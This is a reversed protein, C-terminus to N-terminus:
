KTVKFISRPGMRVAHATRDDTRLGCRRRTASEQASGLLEELRPGIRAATHGNIQLRDRRRIASDEFIASLTAPRPQLQSEQAPRGECHLRAALVLRLAHDPTRPWYRGNQRTFTSSPVRRRRKERGCGIRLPGPRRDRQAINTSRSSDQCM